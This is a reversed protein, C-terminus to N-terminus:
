AKTLTGGNPKKRLVFRVIRSIQMNLLRIKSRTHPLGFGNLARYRFNQMAKKYQVNRLVSTAAEWGWQEAETRAAKGMEVRHERNDLLNKVKETFSDANGPEALYGDVGDHIISPIGGAEAGVVPVGSAMSELVVFGLTESDSPMVFVDASAFAESLEKGHMIGTFVTKTGKFHEKLKEQAPGKGVIALRANPIKHLVDKLLELKKETGLRGVYIMLPDEPHGASLKERMTQSKYKPDFVETDIGKRWVEVRQVGHETLEEKMQPSTVLTLDARNHVLRLMAWAWHVSGPLFWLYDRAYIPLHTHYSMLLPIRFMRAYILAAFTIFGPSTCHIVDPKLKRIMQMGKLELDFTLVIQNYLPFRFGKTNQIEYGLHKTPADKVDDTTVISVEDGAKKLFKLM